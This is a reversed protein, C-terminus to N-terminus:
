GVYTQIGYRAIADVGNECTIINLPRRVGDRVRRAIGKAITVALRPLVTVGVATTILDSKTLLIELTPDTPLMADVNSVVVDSKKAAMITVRYQQSAHLLGVTTSDVDVFTVHYGSQSLQLGVIGRGIKGAGFHVAHGRKSSSENCM